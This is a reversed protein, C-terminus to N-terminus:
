HDLIRYISHLSHYTSLKESWKLISMTLAWYSTQLNSAQTYSEFWFQSESEVNFAINYWKQFHM